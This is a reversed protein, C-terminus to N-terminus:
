EEDIKGNNSVLPAETTSLKLASGFRRIEDLIVM